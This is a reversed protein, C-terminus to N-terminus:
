PSALTAALRAADWRGRHVLIRYRLTVSEGRALELPGYCLVAPTFFTMERSRIAYWPSPANPNDDDDLVAVGVPRGALLGSYDFARHRGRYREQANFEVMGEPTSAARQELNALRLSLGAYGGYVKGGPEGPLPTRDLVVREALATFRGEWDISYSGDPAPRSVTITRWEALVASGPGPAYEVDLRIRASHDPRAEVSPEDWRTRGAPRGTGAAHEWYNVGDIYKWSFWLGHHWAHDAPADRTLPPTGPLALPHFYCQTQEPAYRLCWLERGDAFLTLSRGPVENWRLEFPLRPRAPGAACAGLALGALALLPGRRAAVRARKV